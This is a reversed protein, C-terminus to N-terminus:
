QTLYFSYIQPYGSLSTDTYVAVSLGNSMATLAVALMEKAKDAPATLWKKTFSASKDTLQILIASGGPGAMEVKCLYWAPAANSDTTFYAVALMVVMVMLGVKKAM